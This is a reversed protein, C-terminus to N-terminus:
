RALLWNSYLAVALLWFVYFGVVAGAGILNIRTVTIWHRELTPNLIIAHLLHGAM